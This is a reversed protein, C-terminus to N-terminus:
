RGPGVRVVTFRGRRFLVRDAPPDRLVFGAAKGAAISRRVAAGFPERLANRPSAGYRSADAVVM